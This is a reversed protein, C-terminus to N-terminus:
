RSYSLRLAYLGGILLNICSELIKDYNENEKNIYHEIKITKVTCQLITSQLRDVQRQM